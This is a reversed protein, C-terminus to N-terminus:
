DIIYLLRSVASRVGDFNARKSDNSRGSGSDDAGMTLMSIAEDRIAAVIEVENRDKSTGIEFIKQATAWVKWSGEAEAADLIYRAVDNLNTNTPDATAKAINDIKAIKIDGADAVKAAIKDQLSQSM